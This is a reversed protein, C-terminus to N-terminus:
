ALLRSRAKRRPTLHTTSRCIRSKGTWIEQQWPIQRQKLYKETEYSNTELEKGLNM